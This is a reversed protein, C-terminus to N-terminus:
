SFSVARTDLGNDRSRCSHKMALRLRSTDLSRARTEERCLRNDRLEQLALERHSRAVDNEKNNGDDVAARLPVDRPTPADDQQPVVADPSSAAVVDGKSVCAKAVADSSTPPPGYAFLDALKSLSDAALGEPRGVAELIARARSRELRLGFADRLVRVLAEDDVFGFVFKRLHQRVATTTPEAFRRRVEECARAVSPSSEEDAAEERAVVPMTAAADARVQTHYEAPTWPPKRSSEEAAAAALVCGTGKLHDESQGRTFFSSSTVHSRGFGTQRRRAGLSEHASNLFLM